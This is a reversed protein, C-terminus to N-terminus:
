IHITITLRESILSIPEKNVYTIYPCLSQFYEFGNPFLLGKRRYVQWVSLECLSRDGKNLQENQRVHCIIFRDDLLLVSSLTLGQGALVNYSVPYSLPLGTKPGRDQLGSICVSPKWLSRDKNNLHENQQVRYISSKTMLKKLLEYYFYNWLSRDIKNPHENQQVRCISSKTM